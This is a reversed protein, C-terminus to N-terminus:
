VVWFDDTGEPRLVFNSGNVGIISTRFGILQGLLRRHRLCEETTIFTVLVIKFPTMPLLIRIYRRLSIFSSFCMHTLTQGEKFNKEKPRCKGYIILDLFFSM